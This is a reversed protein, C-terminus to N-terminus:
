LAWLAVTAQLAASAKAPHAAQSATTTRPETPARRLAGKAPRVASALATSAKAPHAGLSAVQALRPALQALL